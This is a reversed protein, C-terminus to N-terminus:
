DKIIRQEILKHYLYERNKSKFDYADSLEKIFFNNHRSLSRIGGNESALALKSLLREDNFEKLKYLKGLARHIYNTPMTSYFGCVAKFIDIKHNLEKYNINIDVEEKLMKSNIGCFSQLLEVPIKRDEILEHLKKYSENDYAYSSLHNMMSWPRSTINLLKIADRGPLDKESVFIYSFPVKNIMCAQLRRHGDIVEMTEKHVLAPGYQNGKTSKISMLLDASAKIRKGPQYRNEEFIDYDKTTHITM